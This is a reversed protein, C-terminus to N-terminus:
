QHAHVITSEVNKFYREHERVWILKVQSNRPGCPQWRMHTQVFTSDMHYRVPSHYNWNLLTIPITCENVNGHSKEKYEKGKRLSFESIPRLKLLEPDQSNAYIAANLLACCVPLRASSVNEAVKLGTDSWVVPADQILESLSRGELLLSIKTVSSSEGIYSIHLMPTDMSTAYTGLDRATGMAVYGGEVKGEEDSLSGGLHFYGIFKDPLYKVPIERDIKSLAKAFDPTLYYARGNNKIFLQCITVHHFFNKDESIIKLVSKEKFNWAEIDKDSFIIKAKDDKRFKELKNLIAYSIKYIERRDVDGRKDMAIEPHVVTNVRM